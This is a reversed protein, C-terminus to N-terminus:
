GVKPFVQMFPHVEVREFIGNTVDGVEFLIEGARASRRRGFPELRRIQTADLNPFIADRQDRLKPDM